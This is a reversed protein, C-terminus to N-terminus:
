YWCSEIRGRGLVGRGCMDTRTQNRASGARMPWEVPSGCGSVLTVVWGGDDDGITVTM